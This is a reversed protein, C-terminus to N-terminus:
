APSGASRTTTPMPAMGFVASAADAPNSTSL